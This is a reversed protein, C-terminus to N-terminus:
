KITETFHRSCNSFPHVKKEGEGRPTTNQSTSIPVAVYDFWPIACHRIESKDGFALYFIEPFSQKKRKKSVIILLTLVPQNLSRLSQAEQRNTQRAWLLSVRSTLWKFFFPQFVSFTPSIIREMSAVFIKTTIHTIQLPCSQKRQRPKM